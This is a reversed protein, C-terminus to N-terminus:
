AYKNKCTQAYNLISMYKCITCINAYMQMSKQTGTKAYGTNCIEACQIEIGVDQSNSTKAYKAIAFM